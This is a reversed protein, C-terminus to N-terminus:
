IMYDDFIQDMSDAPEPIAINGKNTAPVGAAISHAPVTHLVVSGAGIVSGEGVVINGLVTSGAGLLCNKRITPHRKGTEKGTGGLTVGHLISVNDEIVATEGVVLGTAHDIFIGRGIRAAPHIDVGYLHSTRSQIYSALYRQGDTWLKHAIRHLELSHYGKYFLFPELYSETAPDKDVVAALDYMAIQAINEDKKLAETIAQHLNIGEHIFLCRNALVATLASGFSSHETVMQRLLNKLLPEKEAVEEAEQRLTEWSFMSYDKQKM